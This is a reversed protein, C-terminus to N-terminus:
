KISKNISQATQNLIKVFEISEEFETINIFFIKIMIFKKINQNFQKEDIISSVNNFQNNLFWNFRECNRDCFITSCQNQESNQNSQNNSQNNTFKDNQNNHNEQQKFRKKLAWMINVKKMVSDSNM